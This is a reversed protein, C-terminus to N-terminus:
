TINKQNELLLPKIVSVRWYLGKKNNVTRDTPRCKEFSNNANAVERILAKCYELHSGNNPYWKIFKGCNWSQDVQELKQGEHNQKSLQTWWVESGQVAPSMNCLPSRKLVFVFCWTIDLHLWQAKNWTPNNLPQICVWNESWIKMKLFLHFIHKGEVQTPWDCVYQGIKFNSATIVCELNDSYNQLANFIILRFLLFVLLWSTSQLFTACQLGGGRTSNLSQKLIYYLVLGADRWIIDGFLM